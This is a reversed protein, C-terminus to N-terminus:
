RIGTDGARNKLSWFTGGTRKWQIYDSLIQAHDFAFYNNIELGNLQIWKIKASDDRAREKGGIVIGVFVVTIIHNRPDRKPDSYVGLIEVPEVNLSTEEMAERKAAGEVTEGKNVFGGPFALRGEYPDNKREVMLVETGRQIVVDVTPIPNTHKKM